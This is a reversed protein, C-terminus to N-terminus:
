IVSLNPTKKANKVLLSKTSASLLGSFHAKAIDKTGFGGKSGNNSESCNKCLM